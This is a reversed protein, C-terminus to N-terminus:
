GGLWKELTPWRNAALMLPGYLALLGTLVQVMGMRWIRRLPRLRLATESRRSLVEEAARIAGRIQRDTAPRTAFWQQVFGGVRRWLLLVTVAAAILALTAASAVGQDPLSASFVPVFVLLFLSLGMVMNTGCRPHVRPQARVTHPVLPLRREVCHVVQHEAAHTGSMPLLRLLVFILLLPLWSEAQGLFPRLGPAHQASAAWAMLGYGHAATLSRLGIMLAQAVLSLGGLTVGTLFLGWFGAGGAVTGDTLYVGLPTAMGGLRPPTASEPHTLVALVDGTEPNRLVVTGTPSEHLRALADDLTDPVTESAYPM